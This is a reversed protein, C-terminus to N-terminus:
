YIYSNLVMINGEICELPDPQLAKWRVAKNYILPLQMVIYNEIFPIIMTLYHQSDKSYNVAELENQIKFQNQLEIKTQAFGSESPM